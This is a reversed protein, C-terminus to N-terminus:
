NSHSIIELGVLNTKPRICSILNHSNKQTSSLLSRVLLQSITALGINIKAHMNFETHLNISNIAYTKHCSLSSRLLHHVQISLLYDRSHFYNVQINSHKQM